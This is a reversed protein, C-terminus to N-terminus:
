RQLGEMMDLVWANIEAMESNFKEDREKQRLDNDFKLKLYGEKWLRSIEKTAQDRLFRTQERKEAAEKYVEARTM